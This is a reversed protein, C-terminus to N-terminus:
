QKNVQSPQTLTQRSLDGTAISVRVGALYGSWMADALSNRAQTAERQSNLVELWSKRGIPYQRIASEYSARTATVLEALVESDAAASQHQNWDTRVKDLLEKRAIEIADAASEKRATAARVSSAVALGPGPQFTLALYTQENNQNTNGFTRDFRASLQPYYSAKATDIDAEASVMEAAMRELMPANAEAQKLLEELTKSDIRVRVPAQLPGSRQSILQDLDGRANALTNRLQIRDSLAQQLRAKAVVVDGEPSIEAEARRRILALLREHEAVNEDVAEIRLQLRLIEAFASAVKVMLSQEAEVLLAKAIRVKAESLKFDADLRGGAWLPQELRVTVPLTASDQMATSQLSVSPWYGWSSVGLREMAAKLDNQKSQITPHSALAQTLADETRLQAQSFVPILLFVLLFLKQMSKCM